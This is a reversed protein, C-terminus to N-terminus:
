FTKLGCAEFGPSQSVNDNPSLMLDYCLEFLYGVMHLQKEKLNAVGRFNTKDIRTISVAPWFLIGDAASTAVLMDVDAANTRLFGLAVFLRLDEFYGRRLIDSTNAAANSPYSTYFLSEIDNSTMLMASVRHEKHRMWICRNSTSSGVVKGSRIWLGDVTSYYLYSGEVQRLDGETVEMFHMTEVALLSTKLNACSLDKKAHGALVILAAMVPLNSAAWELCWHQQKSEEVKREIHMSLRSCLLGTLVDARDQDADTPIPQPNFHGIVASAARACWSQDGLLASASRGDDDASLSGPCAGNCAVKIKLQSSYHKNALNALMSIFHRFSVSLNVFKSILHMSGSFVNLFKSIINVPGNIPSMRSLLAGRRGPSATALVLPLARTMNVGAAPAQSRPVKLKLCRRDRCDYAVKILCLTGAEAAARSLKTKPIVGPPPKHTDCLRAHIFHKLNGVSLKEFHELTANKLQIRINQGPLPDENGMVQWLKKEAANNEDLISRVKLSEQAERQQVKQAAEELLSARQRKQEEHSIVKSRQCHEMSIGAVRPAEEGNQNVDVPIGAEDYAEEAIHGNDFSTKIFSPLAATYARGEEQTMPRKLTAEIKAMDPGLRGTDVIGNPTRKVMGTEYYGTMVADPNASKFLMNPLVPLFDLLAKEKGAKLFLKDKNAKFCIEISSRLAFHVAGTVTTKATLSTLTRFMPSVDNPQEVASTAGAHKCAIIKLQSDLAIM